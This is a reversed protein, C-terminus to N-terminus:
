IRNLTLMRRIKTIIDGNTGHMKDELLALEMDANNIKSIMIANDKSCKGFRKLLDEKENQLDTIIKFKRIIIGYNCIECIGNSYSLDQEAGCESCIGINNTNSM